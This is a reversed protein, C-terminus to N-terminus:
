DVDRRRIKKEALLRTWLAEYKRTACEVSFEQAVRNRNRRGLEERLAADNALKLVTDRWSKDDGLACMQPAADDGLIEAVGEVDSCLAAKGVSAAELLANPMGEWRSPLAFLDASALIEPVNPRWGAFFVVNALGNADVIRRLADREPGDGVIWIEWDNAIQPAWTAANELFRDFGKQPTLRGVCVIRKRRGFPEPVWAFDASAVAADLAELEAVRVGNPISFVRKTPLRGVTRSFEATAEGVCVWADVLSRTWRDFALRRPADREAVRIGSCVVPVGAARGAFRGFINAHFMFSQLVDVQRRKLERTLRRFVTPANRLGTLGLEVTEVGAERFLPVLSNELDRALGSLSFVVPEVRALGLTAALQLLAKEAGGRSLETILLAVRIKANPSTAGNELTAGKEAEGNAKNKSDKKM